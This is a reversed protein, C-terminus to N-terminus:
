RSVLHLLFNWVLGLGWGWTNLEYSIMVTQPDRDMDVGVNSSTIQIVTQGGGLLAGLVTQRTFRAHHSGHPLQTCLDINFAGYPLQFRSILNDIQIESGAYTTRSSDSSNSNRMVPTPVSYSSAYNWVFYYKRTSISYFSAYGKYIEHENGIDTSAEYTVPLPVTYGINFDTSWGGYLPIRLGLELEREWPDEGLLPHHWKETITSPLMSGISDRYYLYRSDMPIRTMIRSFSPWEMGPELGLLNSAPPHSHTRQKYERSFANILKAGQHGLECQEDVHVWNFGIFSTNSNSSVYNWSIERVVNHLVGFPDNNLFHIRM